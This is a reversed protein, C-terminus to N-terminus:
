SDEDEEDTDEDDGVGGSGSGSGVEHQSQLQTLQHSMKDDSRMSKTPLPVRFGLKPPLFAPLSRPFITPSNGICKREQCLMGPPAFPPPGRCGTPIQRSPPPDDGNGGYGRAVDASMDDDDDDDDVNVLEEDDSDALDHPLADEDDVFDDDELLFACRKFKARYTDIELSNHLVYWVVKKLEQHDFRIISRLGISKCM